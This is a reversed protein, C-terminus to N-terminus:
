CWGPSARSGRTASCRPWSSAASAATATRPWSSRTAWTVGAPGPRGPRPMREFVTLNMAGVVRDGAEALWIVRRPSERALWAAFRDEFDPDSHEGDQEEATERRLAALAAVDTDAARRITAESM